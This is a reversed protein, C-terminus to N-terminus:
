DAGGFRLRVGGNVVFGETPAWADVTWRGDPARFPRVIPDYKTQRTGFINEANVFVRSKGVAMEALLGVEFYPKGQTRYPNDDLEQRGTYYVELGVRGKDHDEWMTVLGATHKPTLPITRRGEGDPDPESADAYVYSGTVVFDSWRYRLLVETGRIRSTGPINVLRVSEPGTPVIQVAKDMDSGFLTVNAEVPGRKYGIDLSATRATEAQLNELPELRSLGAAEIEEVFPTPAFFGRGGSARITWDGPRYLLSLRPSFQTGYENHFDARASGALTVDSGFEREVQGFVAPARYTYGFVPFTESRFSDSQYAFGAVWATGGSKGALSTEAFLTAHSDDEIVPGFGHLHDQKMGSARVHATGVGPVPVKAVLGADLRDTQQTQPFPNGDPTASGPLTGGTRDESMAGLTLFVSEGAAGDWFLRPRVTWRDYGPMDIWGDGDLDVRSQQHLGGTVSAGLEDGLPAALYATADQGDRTTANLLVEGEAEGRPRRSVLNIMGGLASPGYLASAAGKIVEVQGLDTPPIQLLGLSSAQGGYLPLGDALLQTFRGDMGQVRINAAGLAPSTVQVRLGGTESLITAINGPRMLIKEEIEERNIVEVRVPEDQVRRGSRTAQVVIAEGDDEYEETAPAAPENTAPQAVATAHLGLVAGGLLAARLTPSM